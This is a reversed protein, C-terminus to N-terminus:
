PTYISHRRLSVNRFSLRNKKRNAMTKEKINGANLMSIGRPFSEDMCIGVYQSDSISVFGTTFFPIEVDAFRHAMRRATKNVTETIQVRL